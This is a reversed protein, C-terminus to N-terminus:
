AAAATEASYGAMQVLTELFAFAAGERTEERYKLAGGLEIRAQREAAARDLGSKVLDDARHEIHSRLEEDIEHDLSHRSFPKM